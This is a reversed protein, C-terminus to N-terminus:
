GSRIVDRKVTNPMRRVAWKGVGERRRDAFRAQLDQINEVPHFRHHIVGGIMLLSGLNGVRRDAAEIKAGRRSSSGINRVDGEIIPREAARRSTGSDRQVNRGTGYGTRVRCRVRCVGHEAPDDRGSTLALGQQIIEIIHSRQYTLCPNSFPHIVQQGLMCILDAEFHVVVERAPTLLGPPPYADLRQRNIPAIHSGHFELSLAPCSPWIHHVPQDPVIRGRVNKYLALALRRIRRRSKTRSHRPCELDDGDRVVSRYRM